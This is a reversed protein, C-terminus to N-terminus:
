DSSRKSLRVGAGGGNQEIFDVGAAELAARIASLTAARPVAEEGEFRALTRMPVGCEGSLKERSWALLARAARVQAPTTASKIGTESTSVSVIHCM